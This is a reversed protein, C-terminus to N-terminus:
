LEDGDAHQAFVGGERSSRGRKVKEAGRRPERTGSGLHLATEDTNLVNERLMLREEALHGCEEAFVFEVRLSVREDRTLGGFECGGFDDEEDDAADSEFFSGGDM